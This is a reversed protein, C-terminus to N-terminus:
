KGESLAFGVSGGQVYTSHLTLFLSMDFGDLYLGDFSYFSHFDDCWGPHVVFRGTSLAWNM